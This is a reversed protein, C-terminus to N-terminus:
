QAVRQFVPLRLNFIEMPTLGKTRFNLAGSKLKHGHRICAAIM